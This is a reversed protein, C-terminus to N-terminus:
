VAHHLSREKIEGWCEGCLNMTPDSIPNSCSPNNCPLPKIISKNNAWARTHAPTQIKALFAAEREVHKGQQRAYRESLYDSMGDSDKGREM